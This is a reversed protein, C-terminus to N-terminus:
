HSYPKGGNDKKDFSNVKLSYSFRGTKGYREPEAGGSYSKGDKSVTVRFKYGTSKTNLLDDTVLGSRILEALEAYRGGNQSAYAFEAKVLERMITEVETHHTDIRLNFFYNKGDRQVASEATTDDSLILWRDGDRKLQVPQTKPDEDDIDQVRIFVIARNGSIEERTVEINSPINAAMAEFDPALDALDEPTLGDIAPKYISLSFAEGYKRERMLRYFETVTAGPTKPSFPVTEAPMPKTTATTDPKTQAFITQSSVFILFAFATFLITSYKRSDSFM